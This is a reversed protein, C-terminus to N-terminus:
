RYRVLQQMVICTQLTPNVIRSWRSTFDSMFSRRDLCPIVIEVVQRPELTSSLLQCLLCTTVSPSDIHANMRLISTTQYFFFKQPWSVLDRHRSKLWLSLVLITMHKQLMMSLSSTWSQWCSRFIAIVTNVDFRVQGHATTLFCSVPVITTPNMGFNFVLFTSSKKNKGVPIWM